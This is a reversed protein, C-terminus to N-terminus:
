QLAIWVEQLVLWIGHAMWVVREGRADQVKFEPSAKEKERALSICPDPRSRRDRQCSGSLWPSQARPSSTDQLDADPIEEKGGGKEGVRPGAHVESPSFYAYSCPSSPAPSM